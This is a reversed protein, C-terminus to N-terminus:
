ASGSAQRRRVSVAVATSAGVVLLVVAPATLRSTAVDFVARATDAGGGTASGVRDAVAARAVFVVLAAVALAMGAVRLGFRRSPWLLVVAAATVFAVLPLLWRLVSTVDRMDRLTGVSNGDLVEFRLTMDDPVLEALKVLGGVAGDDQLRSAVERGLPSVDVTVGAPTDSEMAAVFSAHAARSAEEWLVGFAESDIAAGVGASVVSGIRETLEAETMDAASLAAPPVLEGIDITEMISGAVSRTLEDRLSPEGILASSLEAFPGTEFVTAHAARVVLSAPILLVLIGAAVVAVTRRAAQM